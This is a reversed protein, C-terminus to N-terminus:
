TRHLSIVEDALLVSLAAKKEHGLEAVDM